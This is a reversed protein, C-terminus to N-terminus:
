QSSGLYNEYEQTGRCYYNPQGMKVKDNLDTTSYGGRELLKSNYQFFLKMIKQQWKVIKEEHTKSDATPKDNNHM